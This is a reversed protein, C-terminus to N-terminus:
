EDAAEQLEDEDIMKEAKLDDEVASLYHAEIQRIKDINNYVASRLIGRKPQNHTGLEAQDAWWASEAGFKTNEIGVDLYNEKKRVWMQYRRAAYKSKKTYANIAKVQKSCERMILRGVDKLAARTLEEILYNARDVNSEYVIDGKKFKLTSPVAM